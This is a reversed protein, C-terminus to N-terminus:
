IRRSNDKKSKEKNSISSNDEISSTKASRQIKYTANAFEEIKGILKIIKVPKVEKFDIILESSNDSTIKIGAIKSFSNKILDEVIAAGGKKMILQSNKDDCNIESNSSIKKLENQLFIIPMITQPNSEVSEKLLEKKKKFSIQQDINDLIKLTIEQAEEIVANKLAREKDELSIDSGFKNIVEHALEIDKNAAAFKLALGKNTPSFSASYKNFIERFYEKGIGNVCATYLPTKGQSDTSNIDAGKELLFTAINTKGNKLALHLPTLESLYDEDPILQNYDLGKDILLELMTTDNERICENLAILLIKDNHQKVDYGNEIFTKVLEKDFEKVARVFVRRILNNPITTLEIGKKTILDITTSNLDNDFIQELKQEIEEKTLHKLLANIVQNNNTRLAHDIIDGGKASNYVIKISTAYKEIADIDAKDIAEILKFTNKRNKEYLGEKKFIGMEEAIKGLDSAFIAINDEKLIVKYHETLAQVQQNTEDKTLLPSEGFNPDFLKYGLIQNNEKNRVVQIATAHGELPQQFNLAIFQANHLSTSLLNLFGKDKIESATFKEDERTQLKTQYTQVRKLFNDSEHEIKRYLKKIFNPDSGQQQNHLTHRTYELCLGNCVGKENLRGQYKATLENQAFSSSQKIRVINGVRKQETTLKQYLEEDSIFLSNTLVANTLNVKDAQLLSYSRADSLDCNTFDVQVDKLGHIQCKKLSLGTFDIKNYKGPEIILYSRDIVPDYGRETIIASLNLTKSSTNSLINNLEEPSIKNTLPKAPDVEAGNNLLIEKVKSRGANDAVYLPTLGNNNKANVNANHQLLLKVIDERGNAVAIHLATIGNENPTNIDVDSNILLKIISPNGEKIALVILPDDSKNWSANHINNLSINRDKAAQLLHELKNEDSEIIAQTFDEYYISM